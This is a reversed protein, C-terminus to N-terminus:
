LFRYKQTLKLLNKNNKRPLQVDLFLILNKSLNKITFIDILRNMFKHLFTYYIYQINKLCFEIINIPPNM